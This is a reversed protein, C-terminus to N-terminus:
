RPATMAARKRLAARHPASIKSEPCHLYASGIQVGLRRARLGRRHRRAFREIAGPAIVPVKVADVVQPMLAFTGVQATLDDSLFMGRHGGAEFGQAIVADVGRQELWRAEKATTASSLVRCGAAKVRKLM